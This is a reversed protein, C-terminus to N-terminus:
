KKNPLPMDLFKLVKKIDEWVDKKLPSNDGGNRLIYSPHYTPMVDINNFKQFNGRMKTIGLETKLLFKTAPNGLTIIVKPKIIEIQKLLINCCSETEEKEPPRDRFGKQDITPRCKVVNAIYVDERNLLMGNQIISTLLEGARGVFPVGQLDEMKGPGEGIFMIKADPNGTGFVYNTRTKYLKCNQCNKTSEYLNQLDAKRTSM